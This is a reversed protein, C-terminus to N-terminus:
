QNIGREREWAALAERLLENLKLDAEAARLRFRRRFDESVKFNLPAGPKADQNPAGRSVSGTVPEATGKTAILGPSLNATKKTAM